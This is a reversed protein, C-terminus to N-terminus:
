STEGGVKSRRADTNSTPREFNTEDRPGLRDDGEALGQRLGAAYAARCRAATLAVVLSPREDGPHRLEHLATRWPAPTAPRPCGAEAWAATLRGHNHGYRHYQARLGAVETRPEWDLVADPAARFTGVGHHQVAWCLDVDGGGRVEAFGGVVDLASRRVALHCTPAYPLFPASDAAALQLPQLHHAARAARSPGTGVRVDGGVVAVAQDEFPAVVAAAWGPRPRCRVDVFAVIPHAAQRWGENRAAYPGEPAPRRIVRAGAAEARPATADASGDDVVVVEGGIAEVAALFDSVAATVLDQEDRVPLVVSVSM